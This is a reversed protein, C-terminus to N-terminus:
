TISILSHNSFCIFVIDPTDNIQQMLYVHHMMHYAWVQEFRVSGFIILMFQFGQKMIVAFRNEDIIVLLYQSM